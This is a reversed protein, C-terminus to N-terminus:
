PRPHRLLALEKEVREGLRFRELFVQDLWSTEPRSDVLVLPLDALQHDAADVVVAVQGRRELLQCLGGAYSRPVAAFFHQVHDLLEVRDAHARAVQAFAQQELKFRSPM